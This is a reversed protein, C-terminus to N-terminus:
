KGKEEKKDDDEEENAEEKNDNDKVAEQKLISGNSGVVLDMSGEKKEIKLEFINGKEASEVQEANEITYDAFRAAVSDKVIQPLASVEIKSETEIWKGSKDFKTSYEKGDMNFVAEFETESEKEWKTDTAKPFKTAFADTVEKPAIDTIPSKKEQNCAALSIILAVAMLIIKTNM